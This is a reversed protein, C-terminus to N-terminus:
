TLIHVVNMLYVNKRNVREDFGVISFVTPKGYVMKYLIGLEIFRIHLFRKAQEHVCCIIIWSIVPNVPSVPDCVRWSPYLKISGLSEEMKLLYSSAM